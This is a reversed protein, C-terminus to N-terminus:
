LANASPPPPSRGLLEQLLPQMERQWIEYGKANPHLLDPMVEKSLTGDPETLAANINLFYVSRGDAEGAIIRNVRENIGRQPDDPKEGRPFVALLLVKTDPLRRRIEDILREIGAATTAPDEARHGTNNTGIM